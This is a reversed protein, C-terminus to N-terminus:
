DKRETSSRMATQRGLSESQLLKIKEWKSLDNTDAYIIISICIHQM